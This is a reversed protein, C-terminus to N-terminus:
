RYCLQVNNFMNNTGDYIVHSKDSNSIEFLEKNHDNNHMFKFLDMNQYSLM